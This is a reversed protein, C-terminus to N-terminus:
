GLRNKFKFMFLILGIPALWDIMQFIYFIYYSPDQCSLWGGQYAEYISLGEDILISLFWLVAGLLGLISAKKM